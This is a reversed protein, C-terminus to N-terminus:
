GNAKSAPFHIVERTSFGCVSQLGEHNKFLEAVTDVDEIGNAILNLVTIHRMCQVADAFEYLASHDQCTSTDWGLLAM